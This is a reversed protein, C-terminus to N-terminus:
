VHFSVARGAPVCRLRDRRVGHRTVGVFKRALWKTPNAVSMSMTTPDAGPLSANVSVVPFDAQPLAAVPLYGYAFVGAVILAAAPDHFVANIGLVKM